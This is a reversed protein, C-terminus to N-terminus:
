PHISCVCTGKSMLERPLFSPLSFVQGWFCQDCVRLEGLDQLEFITANNSSCTNCVLNGCAFCHQPSLMVSFLTACIMCCDLDVNLVWGVNSYENTTSTQLFLRRLVIREGKIVVSEKQLVLQAGVRQFSASRKQTEIAEASLGISTRLLQILDASMFQRSICPKREVSVRKEKKMLWGSRWFSYKTSEFRFDVRLVTADNIM